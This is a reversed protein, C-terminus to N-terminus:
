MGFMSKIMNAKQFAQNYQQQTIQGSNLMQQIIAQPDGTFNKKFEMFQQMMNNYPGKPGMQEYSKNM